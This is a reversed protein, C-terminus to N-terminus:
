QKLEANSQEEHTELDEEVKFVYEQSKSSEAKDRVKKSAVTSGKSEDDSLGDDDENFIATEKFFLTEPDM